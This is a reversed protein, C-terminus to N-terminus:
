STRSDTTYSSSATRPACPGHNSGGLSANSWAAVRALRRWDLPTSTKSGFRWGDGEHLSDFGCFPWHQPSCLLHFPSSSAPHGVRCFMLRLGFSLGVAVALNRTTERTHLSASPPGSAMTNSPAVGAAAARGSRGSPYHPHAVNATVDYGLQALGVALSGTYPANGTPEPPYNLGLILVDPSRAM